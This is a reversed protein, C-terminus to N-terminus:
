WRIRRQRQADRGERLARGCACRLAQQGVLLLESIGVVRSSLLLLLSAARLLHATAAQSPATDRPAGTEVGRLRLGGYGSGTILGLGLM